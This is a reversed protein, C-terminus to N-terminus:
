GGGWFCALCGWKSKELYLNAEGARDGSLHHQLAGVNQDSKKRITDYKM